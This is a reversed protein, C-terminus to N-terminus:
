CDNALRLAQLHEEIRKLMELGVRDFSKNTNLHKAVQNLNNGWRALEMVLNRNEKLRREKKPTNHLMSSIAFETFSLDKKKANILELQEQTIRISKIISKM